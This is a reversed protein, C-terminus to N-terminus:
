SLPQILLEQPERHSILRHLDLEESEHIHQRRQPRIGLDIPMQALIELLRGLMQRPRRPEGHPM